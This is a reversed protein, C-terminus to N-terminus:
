VVAGPAGVWGGDAVGEVMVLGKGFGVWVGELAVIVRGEEVCAALCNRVEEAEVDFFDNQHGVSRGCRVLDESRQFPFIAVDDEVEFGYVPGQLFRDQIDTLRRLRFAELNLHRPWNTIIFHDSQKFLGHVLDIAM